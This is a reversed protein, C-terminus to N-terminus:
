RRTPSAAVSRPPENSTPHNPAVHTAGHLPQGPEFRRGAGQCPAASGAAGCGCPAKPPIRVRLRSSVMCGSWRTLKSPMTGLAPTSGASGPNSGPAEAPQALEAQSRTRSEFGRTGREFRPWPRRRRVGSHSRGAPVSGAAGTQFVPTDASNVLVADLRRTGASYVTRSEFGRDGPHPGPSCETSSRRDM